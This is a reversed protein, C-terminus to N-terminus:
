EQRLRLLILGGVLAVVLVGFSIYNLDPTGADEQNPAAALPAENDVPAFRENEAGSAVTRATPTPTALLTPKPTPTASPSPTPTPTPRNTDAASPKPSAGLTEPLATSTGRPRETPLPTASSTPAPTSTTTAVASPKPPSVTTEPTPTDTIPRQRATPSPKPSPLLTRTPVSTATSQPATATYTPLPMSTVTPVTPTTVTPLVPETPPPPAAQAPAGCIQDLTFLPPQVGVGASGLGWVWGEVAGSKVIYSNVGQISYRWQGDLLHFYNWYTCTGGPKMSCQCFCREAPFGCGENGIKCVTGGGFGSSYDIVAAFGSSRLVEEGSAQGSPGLDVCTTHVSGDSFQIMLGAQNAGEQAAVTTILAVFALLLTSAALGKARGCARVLREPQMGMSM